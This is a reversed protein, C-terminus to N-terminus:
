NIMVSSLRYWGDSLKGENALQIRAKNNRDVM